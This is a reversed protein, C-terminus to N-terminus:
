LAIKDARPEQLRGARRGINDGTRLCRAFDDVLRRHLEGFQDEGVVSTDGGEVYAKLTQDTLIAQSELGM